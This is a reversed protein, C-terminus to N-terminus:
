RKVRIHYKMLLGELNHASFIANKLRNREPDIIYKGATQFDCKELISNEFVAGELDCEHFATESLDASSFDCEKLSCSQIPTRKMRRNFFSSLDLRCEHFSVSFLYSNCEDFRVGMMKCRTFVSDSFTTDM